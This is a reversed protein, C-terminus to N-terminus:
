NENLFSATETPSEAEKKQKFLLLLLSFVFFISVLLIPWDSIHSGVEDMNEEIKNQQIFYSVVVAFCNNTFHGIIPAWISGTYVLLYGFLVGLILRPFFGFFQLHIASFLFATLWVALHHNKFTSKFTKQLFGRFFLEEGVAPIVAIVLLNLLLQVVNDMRLFAITIREASKEASIMWQEINSFIEPLHMQSNWEVMFNILPLAALMLVVIKIATNIPLLKFNYFGIIPKKAFLAYALPPIIFLGVANFIQYIKLNFVTSNNELDMIQTDNFVIDFGFFLGIIIFGLASFIATSILAVLAFFSLKIGLRGHNLIETLNM